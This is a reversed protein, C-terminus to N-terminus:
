GTTTLKPPKMSRFNKYLDLFEEIVDNITEKPSLTGIIKTKDTIKSELNNMYKEINVNRM